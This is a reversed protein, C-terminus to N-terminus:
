GIVLGFDDIAVVIKNRLGRGCITGANGLAAEAVIHRTRGDDDVTIRDDTRRDDNRTRGGRLCIKVVFRLVM